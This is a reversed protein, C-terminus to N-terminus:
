DDADDTSDDDDDGTPPPNQGPPPNSNPPPNTLGDGSQGGGTSGGADDDDDNGGSPPPQSPTAVLTARAGVQGCDDDDDCQCGEVRAYVGPLLGSADAVQIQLGYITVINGSVSEIVGELVLTQSCVPASDTALSTPLPTQTLTLSPTVTHTLRPAPTWTASPELTATLVVAPVTLTPEPAADDRGGLLWVVLIVVLVLMVMLLPILWPRPRREPITDIIQDIVPQIRSRAAAVEAVPLEYRPVSDRATLLVRLDDAFQPYRRIAQDLTQGQEILGLCDHFANILDNSAM